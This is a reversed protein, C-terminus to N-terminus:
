ACARMCSQAGPTDASVWNMQEDTVNVYHAPVVSLDERLNDLDNGYIGEVEQAHKLVAARAIAEDQTGLVLWEDGGDLSIVEPDSV